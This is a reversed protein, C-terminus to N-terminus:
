KLLQEELFRAPGDEDNTGCVFDAAAQIEPLANGVAVSVGAERFMSVDNGNDGIALVAEKPLNLMEMLRKLGNGKSAHASSTETLLDDSACFIVNGDPFQKQLIEEFQRRDAYFGSVKWVVPHEKRIYESLSPYEPVDFNIFFYRKRIFREASEVSLPDGPAAEESLPEGTITERSGPKVTCVERMLGRDTDMELINCYPRMWDLSLVAEEESLPFEAVRRIAGTESAGARGAAIDIESIEGDDIGANAPVGSLAYVQAGNLTIAYRIGPMILVNEEMRKLHRGSAPVVLYGKETLRELVQRSYFSLTKDKRLLTEDLDVTILRVTSLDTKKM